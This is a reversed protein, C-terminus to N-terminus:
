FEIGRQAGIGKSFPHKVEAMETVLDAIDVIEAPANRGTLMLHLEDPKGAIASLVDAVDLFGFAMAVNIEDLVILDYMGSRVAQQFAELGTHALYIDLPECARSQAFGSRGFQRVTIPLRCLPLAKFLGIGPQGKMFQLILVRMGQGAARLALGVAATTKGKGPGTNVMVLGHRKRTM